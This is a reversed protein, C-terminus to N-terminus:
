RPLVAATKRRLRKVIAIRLKDWEPLCLAVQSAPRAPDASPVKVHHYDLLEEFEDLIQRALDFAQEQRGARKSGKM